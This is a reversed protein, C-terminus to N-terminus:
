FFRSNICYIKGNRDKAYALLLVCSDAPETCSLTEGGSNVRVLGRGLLVPENKPLTMNKGNVELSLPEPGFAIGYTASGGGPREIPLSILEAITVFPYQESKKPDPNPKSDVFIVHCKGGTLNGKLNFNERASNKFLLNIGGAPWLWEGFGYGAPASKKWLPVSDRFATTQNEGPQALVICVRAPEPAKGPGSPTPQAGCRWSLFLFLFFCGLSGWDRRASLSIGAAVDRQIGALGGIRLPFHRWSLGGSHM